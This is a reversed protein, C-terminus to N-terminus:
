KVAVLGDQIPNHYHTDVDVKAAGDHVHGNKGGQVTVDFLHSVLPHFYPM